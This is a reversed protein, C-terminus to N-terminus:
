VGNLLKYCFYIISYYFLRMLFCLLLVHSILEHNRLWQYLLLSQIQETTLQYDIYSIKADKETNKRHHVLPTLHSLIHSLCMHHCLNRQATTHPGPSKRTKVENSPVHLEVTTWSCDTVGWVTSVSDSLVTAPNSESLYTKKWHWFSSTQTNKM